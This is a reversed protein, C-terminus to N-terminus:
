SIKKAGGLEAVIEFEKPTVPQVSLRAGRKLVMMEKLGKELAMMKLTVPTKFEYLATVDVMVWPNQGKKWGDEDFYKSSKDFAFPDPYGERAVEVIGFAGPEDINSHYYLALDGLKFFDRMFNRAQYNRVGEWSTTRNKARMLDKFSFTGPESKMLWYRRKGDSNKLDTM